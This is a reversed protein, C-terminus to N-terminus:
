IRCADLCMRCYCTVYAKECPLSITKEYIDGDM